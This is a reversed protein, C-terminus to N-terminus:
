PLGQRVEYEVYGQPVSSKRYNGKALRPQSRGLRPALSILQAMAAVEDEAGEFEHKATDHSEQPFVVQFTRRFTAEDHVM